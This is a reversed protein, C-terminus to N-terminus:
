CGMDLRNSWAENLLNMAILLSIPRVRLATGLIIM